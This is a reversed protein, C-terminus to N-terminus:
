EKWAELECVVSGLEFDPDVVAVKFTRSVGDAGAFQVLWPTRSTEPVAEPMSLGAATLAAMSFVVSAFEGGVGQGTQPDIMLSVHKTLGVLTREVGEPNTVRVSRGFGSLDGSIAQFDAVAQDLLGM